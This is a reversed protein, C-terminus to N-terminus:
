RDKRKRFPNRGGMPKQLQPRRNELMWSVLEAKLFYLKKGRKYHPIENRSTLGYITQPALDIFEAAQEVNFHEPQPNPDSVPVGKTTLAKQVSADIMTQLEDPQVVIVKTM